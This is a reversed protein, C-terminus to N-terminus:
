KGVKASKCYMQCNQNNLKEPSSGGAVYKQNRWPSIHMSPAYNPVFVQVDSLARLESFRDKVDTVETIPWGRYFQCDLAQEVADVDPLMHQALAKANVGEFMAFCDLLPRPLASRLFDECAQWRNGWTPLSLAQVKVKRGRVFKTLFAIDDEGVISSSSQSSINSDLAMIIDSVVSVASFFICLFLEFFALLTHNDLCSECFRHKRPYFFFHLPPTSIGIM